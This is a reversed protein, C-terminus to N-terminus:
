LIASLLIKLRTVSVLDNSKANSSPTSTNRGSVPWFYVSEFGFWSLGFIIMGYLAVMRRKHGRPPTKQEGQLGTRFGAVTFVAAGILGAWFLVLAPTGEIRFGAPAAMVCVAVFVAAIFFHAAVRIDWRM